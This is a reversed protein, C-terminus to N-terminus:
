QPGRQNLASRLILLEANLRAIELDKAGDLRRATRETWLHVALALLPGIVQLFLDPVAAGIIAVGVAASSLASQRDQM